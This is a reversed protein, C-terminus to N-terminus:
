LNNMVVVSFIIKAFIANGNAYVPSVIISLDNWSGIIQLYFDSGEEMMNKLANDFCQHLRWLSLCWSPGEKLKCASVKTNCGNLPASM